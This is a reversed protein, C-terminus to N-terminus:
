KYQGTLIFFDTKSTELVERWTISFLIFNEYTMSITLM